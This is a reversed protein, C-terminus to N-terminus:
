VRGWIEKLRREKMGRAEDRTNWRMGEDRKRWEEQKLCRGEDRERWGHEKIGRGEDRVRWGKMMGGKERKWGKRIGGRERKWGRRMEGGEKKMGKTKKGLFLVSFVKVPSQAGADGLRGGWLCVRGKNHGRFPGGALWGALGEATCDGVFSAERVGLMCLSFRFSHAHVCNTTRELVFNTDPVQM